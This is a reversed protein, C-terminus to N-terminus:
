GANILVDVLSSYSFKWIGEERVLVVPIDTRGISDGERTKMSYDLMVIAQQGDGSVNSDTVSFGELVNGKAALAESYTQIDPKVSGDPNNYATFNYLRAWDKKTFSDLAQWLTYQPTLILDKMRGLPELRKTSNLDWGAEQLTIGQGVGAQKEVNIQVRSFRGMEVVTNVISCIALKKQDAVTGEELVVKEPDTSVFAENLTIFLIDASSDVRLLKVGDWFLGSLEARNVTPGAMLARVVAYELSENVPVNVTVMEGALLKEGRYSFYLTVNASDKNASEANPNIDPLNKDANNVSSDACGAMVLMIIILLWAVTRKIAM